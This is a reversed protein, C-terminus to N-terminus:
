CAEASAILIQLVGRLPVGVWSPRFALEYGLEYLAKELLHFKLLREAAAEDHPWLRTDTMHERYSSIFDQSATDRWANLAATIKAEDDPIIELARHLAATATGRSWPQTSGDL